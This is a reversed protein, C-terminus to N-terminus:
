PNLDFVNSDSIAIKRLTELESLAISDRPYRGVWDELVMVAKDYQQSMKLIAVLISYAEADNPNEKILDRFVAEARDWYQFQAYYGAITLREERNMQRGRIVYNLQEEGDIPLDARQYFNTIALAHREDNYPIVQPPMKESMFKLVVQADEKQGQNLYYEVLSLFTSRYNQLLKVTNTNFYVTSNDLGRYLYKELLNVKLREAYVSEVPYPVVKFALGDMRLYDNLGIKNEESVTMAFYVPRRWETAALIRIIMLDKVLIADQGGVSYTPEVTFVINESVHEAGPSEMKDKVEQMVDEPVPISMKRTQWARPYLAEIAADSLQIPIKPELDRLQKIYWATNLLSLNVVRVDNRIGYVEQLFWLPFTDNDGNTFVIANQECSQLINYSYDYAVYNGTRDHSEFNFAFLRIPLIILLLVSTSILVVSRIKAKDRLFDGIWELLGAVGTGIWLAFAFFSGVYVYDRERPQPDEQNLYVVIAIGTMVFLVLVALARKWDRSFHHVMGFLGILFPLGFLGYLSITEAIYDDTGLTTGKGIFQWGFYRWYLKKMQFNWFFDMQKGFEHFAYSQGPNQQEFIMDFPIGPYRRPLTGWTGYQERNLYSVLREPTDPNNEDIPPDLSSRIYIVSYTSYGLLILFLSILALSTWRRRQIVAYLIALALGIVLLALLGFSWKEVIYPVGQIIGPYILYFITVGCGLFFALETYRKAQESIRGRRYIGHAILFVILGVFLAKFVLGILVSIGLLGMALLGHLIFEKISDPKCKRFYIILFVFPLALINLLHIAIALGVCYSIMLIYRDSSPRDSKEMWVLILWVVAATFFMSIAYVEAEVANFWQSDTFAFALSGIFGSAYVLFRDTATKPEGRWINILRVIILYTFLVTLTSTIASILNVRFGIDAAFPILSFIRGILLYFPAGPPHPVGLIYSCTIFEGCDWFSTTPAITRLYTLFAIVTVVFGIFGNLRKHNDM